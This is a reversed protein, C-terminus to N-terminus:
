NVARSGTEAVRSRHGREWLLMGEGEGVRSMGSKELVRISAANAPDCKAIIRDVEPQSLGWSILAGAAESAYGQNRHAAHVGFGLEIAQDKPTGQFGASGVVTRHGRAIVIWPGYGLRSPDAAVWPGYVRLLGALEADPWGDPIIADILQQAAEREALAEIFDAGFPILVLRETTLRLANNAM